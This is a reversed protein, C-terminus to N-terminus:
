ISLEPPLDRKSYASADMTCQISDGNPYYSMSSLYKKIAGSENPETTFMLDAYVVETNQVQGESGVLSTRIQNQLSFDIQRIHVGNIVMPGFKACFRAAFKKDASQQLECANFKLQLAPKDGFVKQFFESKEKLFGLRDSFVNENSLPTNLGRTQGSPDTELDRFSPFNFWGILENDVISVKHVLNGNAMACGSLLQAQAQTTLFVSTAILLAAKFM